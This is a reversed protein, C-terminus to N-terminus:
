SSLDLSCIFAFVAGCSAMAVALGPLPEGSLSREITVPCGGMAKLVTDATLGHGEPSHHVRDVIFLKEQGDKGVVGFATAVDAVGANREKAVKRVAEAIAATKDWTAVAACTTLMLFM